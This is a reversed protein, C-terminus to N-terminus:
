AQPELTPVLATLLRSLQAGAKAAVALVQELPAPRMCDPLNRNTLCSIGLVRLGLHRAAIVELVTSMGVADAGWLRYARTEAPSEMEPGHVGIYVGRELRIGLRLATELAAAQLAADFPASMDPFREGWADCNDGTLPSVGTHNIMDALCMLSGPEFRPNLAGAANTIVLVRAGLAAMVRVGMCVEAPSRGEYLHCRGLQALVPTAGMEAWVFAGEHSAVGPLPFGPLGAFPVRVGGACLTEALGSLGTGLVLAVSPRDCRAGGALLAGRLADAARQVEHPNQM